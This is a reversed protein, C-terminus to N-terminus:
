GIGPPFCERLERFGEVGSSESSVAADVLEDGGSGRVDGARSAGSVRSRSGQGVREYAEGPAFGGEELVERLQRGCFSCLVSEATTPEPLDLGRSPAAPFHVRGRPVLLLFWYGGCASDVTKKCRECKLERREDGILV